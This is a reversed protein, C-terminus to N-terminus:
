VNKDNRIRKREINQKRTIEKHCPKCCAECPLTFVREYYEEVSYTYWYRGLECVPPEHNLEIESKPFSEGCSSCVFLKGGRPGTKKSEAKHLYALYYRSFAFSSRIAAFIKTLTTRDIM